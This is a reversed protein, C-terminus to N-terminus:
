STRSPEETARVPNLVPGSPTREIRYDVVVAPRSPCCLPDTPAYRVFRASLTDNFFSVVSGAGTARSNMPEPSITGAFDGEVFVFTQFGMPRCMGDYSTTADVLKVGWGARYPNFLDWGDDVLAQDEPTEAWRARELCGPNVLGETPPAPPIAMGPQNWNALPRDLWEGEPQAAAAGAFLALGLALPVLPRRLLSLSPM